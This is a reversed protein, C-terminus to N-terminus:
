AAAPGMRRIGAGSAAAASAAAASAAAGSAAAAAAANSFSRAACTARSCTRSVQRDPQEGVRARRGCCPMGCPHQTLRAGGLHSGRHVIADSCPWIDEAAAAAAPCSCSRGHRLALLAHAVSLDSVASASTLVTVVTVPVRSSPSSPARLSPRRVVPIVKKM